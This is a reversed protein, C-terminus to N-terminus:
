PSHTNLPSTKFTSIRKLEPLKTWNPTLALVTTVTQRALSSTSFQFTRSSKLKSRLSTSSKSTLSALIKPIMMNMKTGTAEKKILRKILGKRRQTDMMKGLGIAMKRSIMHKLNIKIGQSLGRRRRM